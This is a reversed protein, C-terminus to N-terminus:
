FRKSSRSLYPYQCPLFQAILDETLAEGGARLEDRFDSLSM